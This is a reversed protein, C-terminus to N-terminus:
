RLTSLYDVLAKIQQENLYLQPMKGGPLVEEPDSLLRKLEEPKRKRAIHTLVPGVEGGKSGIVHCLSCGAGRFLTEGNYRFRSMAGDSPPIFQEKGKAEHPQDPQYSTAVHTARLATKSLRDRTDLLTTLYVTISKIEERSLPFVPM